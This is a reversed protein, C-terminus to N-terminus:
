DPIRLKRIYVFTFITAIVSPIFLVALSLALFLDPESRVFFYLILIAPISVISAAILGRGFYANAEYWIKDNKLTTPTRFGYLVNRPVKRLVLPIAVLVFILTVVGATVLGKFYITSEIM